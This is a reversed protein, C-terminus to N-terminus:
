KVKLIGRMGKAAHADVTCLFPFGGTRVFTVKYTQNQGRGLYKSKPKVGTIL